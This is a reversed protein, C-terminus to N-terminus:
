NKVGVYFDVEADSPNQAKHGFIEFDAVFTRDLGMDFIKTWHNIILGQTLNGKATTIIYNGCGFTRGVMGMPIIDLNGVKCGIIATYPKTHDSEYDTYLCYVTNDLRAPIEAVINESVFKQWLEAIDKNGQENENTTRASIGILKFPEIKVTQM